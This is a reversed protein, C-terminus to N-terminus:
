NFPEIYLIENELIMVDDLTKEQYANENVVEHYSYEDNQHRKVITIDKEKIEIKPNNELIQLRKKKIQEQVQSM